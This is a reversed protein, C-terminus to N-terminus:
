TLLQYGEFTAGLIQVAVDIEDKSLDKKWRNVNSNDISRTFKIKPDELGEIREPSFFIDLIHPEWNLELKKFLEKLTEEPQNVLDEYHIRISSNPNEIEHLSGSRVFSQLLKCKGDFLHPVVRNFKAEKLSALVDLPHRIVHIFIFGEPLIKSWENLYLVNEPNKDAWRLKRAHNMAEKHFEVFAKGFINLFTEHPLNYSRATEFFRFIRLEDSLVNYYDNFFKVESGCHVNSHSDLLRRLLTTGSRYCGGIIIPKQFADILNM